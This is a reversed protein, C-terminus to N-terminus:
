EFKFPKPDAEEKKLFSDRTRQLQEDIAIFMMQVDLDEYDYILRNGCRSLLRLSKLVAEVRRAGVKLFRNRNAIRRKTRQSPDAMTTSYEKILFSVGDAVFPLRNGMRQVPLSGLRSTATLQRLTDLLHIGRRAEQGTTSGRHVSAVPPVISLRRYCWLSHSFAVSSSQLPCLRRDPDGTQGGPTIEFGSPHARALVDSREPAFGPTSTM